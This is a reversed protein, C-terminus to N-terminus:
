EESEDAEIQRLYQQYEHSISCFVDFNSTARDEFLEEYLYWHASVFRQMMFRHLEENTLKVLRSAQYYCGKVEDNVRKWKLLDKIPDLLTNYFPKFISQLMNLGTHWDGPMSQVTKLANEFEDCQAGADSLNVGRKRLDKKFAELLEISKRDGYITNRHEESGKSCIWKEFDEETMTDGKLLLDLAVTGCGEKKGEDLGVFGMFLSKTVEEVHPNWKAVADKQFNRNAKFFQKAEVSTVHKRLDLLSKENINDPCQECYSDESRSFITHLRNNMCAQRLVRIYEDCRNETFDPNPDGVLNKHDVFYQGLKENAPANEYPAMNPPSPIVQGNLGTM